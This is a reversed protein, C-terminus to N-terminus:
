NFPGYKHTTESLGDAYPGFPHDIPKQKIDPWDGAFEKHPRPMSSIYAAVDWAEEVSLLPNDHSVGYPMNARIFAALRSVRFLGAGTNFSGDGWLPPYLWEVRNEHRVGQGDAGHCSVCYNNYYLRGNGPDAARALYELKPLGSGRPTTGVKVDKGVWKVYAVMARMERSKGPLPRGNLSREICDNIRKEIGEVTGSRHRFKPYTSAVASYNIGFPTTGAKLHCNQCNMGNSIPAVKGKPGLYVSTHEILDRGYRILDGAVDGPIEAVDPACWLSDAGSTTRTDSNKRLARAQGVVRVLQCAVLTMVLLLVGMAIRLLRKVLALDRDDAQM